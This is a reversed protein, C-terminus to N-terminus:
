LRNRDDVPQLHGRRRGHAANNPLDIDGLEAGLWSKRCARDPRGRWSALGARVVALAASARSWRLWRSWRGTVRQSPVAVVPGPEPTGAMQRLRTAWVGADTYWTRCQRCAALHQDVRAVPVPEREGDLRASLAERAVACDVHGDNGLGSM